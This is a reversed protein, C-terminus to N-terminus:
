EYPYIIEWTATIHKWLIYHPENHSCINCDGMVSTTEIEQWITSSSNKKREASFLLKDEVVSGGDVTVKGMTCGHGDDEMM